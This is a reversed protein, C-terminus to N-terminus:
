AAYKITRNPNILWEAKGSESGTYEPNRILVGEKGLADFVFQLITRRQPNSKGISHGKLATQCQSNDRVSIRNIAGNDIGKWIVSIALENEAADAPQDTMDPTNIATNVTNAVTDVQGHQVTDVRNCPAHQVTDVRNHVTDAPPTHVAEVRTAARDTAPLQLPYIEEAKGLIPSHKDTQVFGVFRRPADTLEATAVTAVTPAPASAIIPQQVSAAVAPSIHTDALPAPRTNTQQNATQMDREKILEKYIWAGCKEFDSSELAHTKSLKNFESRCIGNIHKQTLPLAGANVMSSIVKYCHRGIETISMLPLTPTEITEVAQEAPTEDAQNIAVPEAYETSEIAKELLPTHEIKHTKAYEVVSNIDSPDFGYLIIKKEHIKNGHYMIGFEVVLSSAFYFVFGAWVNIKEIKGFILELIAGFVQFLWNAEATETADLSNANNTGDKRANVASDYKQKAQIKDDYSKKLEALQTKYQVYSKGKEMMAGVTNGSPKGAANLAEQKLFADVKKNKEAELAQADFAAAYSYERIMADSQEVSKIATNFMTSGQMKKETIEQENHMHTGVATIMSFGIFLLAVKKVDGAEAMAAKTQEYAFVFMASLIAGAISPITWLTYNHTPLGIWFWGSFGMATYTLIRILLINHKLSQEIIENVSTSKM